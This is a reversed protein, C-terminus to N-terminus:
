QLDKAARPLFSHMIMHIETETVMTDHMPKKETKM